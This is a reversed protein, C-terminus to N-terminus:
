EEIGMLKSIDKWNKKRQDDYAKLNEQSKNKVYDLLLQSQKKLGNFAYIASNAYDIDSQNIFFNGNILDELVKILNDILNKQANLLANVSEEKYVECGYGDGISGIASYTNYMSAASFSGVAELLKSERRECSQSIGNISICLLCIGTILKKM